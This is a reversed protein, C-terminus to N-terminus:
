SIFIAGILFGVLWGGIALIMMKMLLNMQKYAKNFRFSTVVLRHVFASNNMWPIVINWFRNEIWLFFNKIFKM